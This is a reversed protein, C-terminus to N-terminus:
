NPVKGNGSEFKPVRCCVISFWASLRQIRDYITLLGNQRM